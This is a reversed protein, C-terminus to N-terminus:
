VRRMKLAHVWDGAQVCGDGVVDGGGGFVMGSMERVASIM